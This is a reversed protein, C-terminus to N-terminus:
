LSEAFETLSYKQPRCYCIGFDTSLRVERRTMRADCTVFARGQSIAFSFQVEDPQGLLGAEQSTTVDIGHLRLLDAVIPSVHEDLHFRIAM